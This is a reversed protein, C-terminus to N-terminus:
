IESASLAQKLRRGRYASRATAYVAFAGGFIIAAGLPLKIISSSTVDIFGRYFTYLGVFLVLLSALLEIFMTFVLRM